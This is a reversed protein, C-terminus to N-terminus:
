SASHLRRWVCKLYFFFSWLMFCSFVGIMFPILSILPGQPIKPAQHRDVWEISGCGLFSPQKAPYLHTIGDVDDRGLSLRNPIIQAYMLSDKAPSHGLGLAHGLEHAVLAKFTETDKDGVRSGSINNIVFLAGIINSTNTTLITLGLIGTSSFSSSNNNCAILIDKSVNLNQNKICNNNSDYSSCLSETGFASNVSVLEGQVLEIDATAVSNWYEDAIEPILDFIEEPTRGTNACDLNSAVNVKITSQSYRLGDSTMFTYANAQLSFFFAAFLFGVISTM